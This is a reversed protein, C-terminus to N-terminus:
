TRLSGYRTRSTMSVDPTGIPSRESIAAVFPGPNIPGSRTPRDWPLPIANPRSRGNM